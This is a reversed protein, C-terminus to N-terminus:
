GTTWDYGYSWTGDSTLNGNADYAHAAGGAATYQNLGNSTYSKTGPTAGSWQYLNNTWSVKKLETLQNSLGVRRKM